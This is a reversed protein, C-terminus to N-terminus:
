NAVELLKKSVRAQVDIYYKTEAANLDEDEWEAFEECLEAYKTVYKSYDSILSIDAGNSKAYKKMFKVYEDIFEEYSDMAEKFEKGIKNKNTQKNENKEKSTNKETTNSSSIDEEEEPAEISIEVVNAGLYRLDVEYGKSNFASFSKESKSYDNTFGKDECKKVYENYDDITTNGIHIIFSDSNNWSINGLKSKPTPLMAGLGNTPWEIDKMKLKEPMELTIGMKENSELYVIRISYGEENFAGYVTDWPEYELDISYGSDICKQVYEKYEKKTLKVIDIIALDSRNTTIKGYKKDPEPIFECLEIESWDLKQNKEKESDNMGNSVVLILVIAIAIFWGKKYFPKKTEVNNIGM